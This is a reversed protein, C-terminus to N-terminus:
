VPVALHMTYKSSSHEELKQELLTIKKELSHQIERAAGLDAALMANRTQLESIGGAVSVGKVSGNVGHTM